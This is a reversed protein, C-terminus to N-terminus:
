EAKLTCSSPKATEQTFEVSAARRIITGFLYKLQFYFCLAQKEVSLLFVAPQELAIQLLLSLSLSNTWM